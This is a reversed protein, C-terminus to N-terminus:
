NKKHALPSLPTENLEKSEFPNGQTGKIKFFFTNTQQYNKDYAEQQMIHQYHL